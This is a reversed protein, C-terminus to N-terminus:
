LANLFDKANKTPVKGKSALVAQEMGDAIHQLLQQEQKTTRDNLIHVFPFHQLLNKIFSIKSDKVTITLQKM